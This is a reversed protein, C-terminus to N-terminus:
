VIYLLWLVVILSNLPMISIFRLTTMFESFWYYHARFWNLYLYLYLYLTTRYCYLFFDFLSKSRSSLIMDYIMTFWLSRTLLHRSINSFKAWSPSTILCDAIRFLTASYNKSKNLTEASNLRRWCNRNLTVIGASYGIVPNRRASRVVPMTFLERYTSFWCIKFNLRKDMYTCRDNRWSNSFFVM